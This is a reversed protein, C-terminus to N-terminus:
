PTIDVRVARGDDTPRLWLEQSPAHHSSWAPPAGEVSISAPATAYGRLRLVDATGDASEHTLSLPRSADLGLVDLDLALEQLDRTRDLALSNLTGTSLPAMALRLRGFADPSISEVQVHLWRGPGDAFLEVTAPPSSELEFGAVWDLAPGLELTEWSHGAAPMHVLDETVLAGRQQLYNRMAIVGALLETNPDALNAHLYIPRQSFNVVPALDPDVLGSSDFRVPSVRDYEFPVKSPPGGFHRIDELLLQLSLDADAYEQVMDLSPTHIVVGAFQLQQPDLHRMAFSLASLGGMSFGVAYVRRYNFPVLSFLLHSVAALSAQSRVNGFNTDTLGYPAVLMWGREAAEYPLTTNVFVDKESASFRHFGVVVCREQFPKTTFDAPMQVLLREAYLPSGSFPARIVVEFTPDGSFSPVSRYLVGSPGHKWGAGGISPVQVTGLDEATQAWRFMEQPEEGEPQPGAVAAPVLITALFALASAIRPM